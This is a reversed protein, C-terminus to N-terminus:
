TDEPQTEGLVTLGSGTRNEDVISELRQTRSHERALTQKRLRREKLALGGCLVAVLWALAESVSANALIDVIVTADTIKGALSDIALYTFLCPILLVGLRVIGSTVTM